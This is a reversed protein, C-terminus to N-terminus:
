LMDHLTNLEKRKVSITSLKLKKLHNSKSKAKLNQQKTNQRQRELTASIM